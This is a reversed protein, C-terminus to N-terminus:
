PSIAAKAVIRFLPFGVSHLIALTRKRLVSLGTFRVMTFDSLRITPEDRDFHSGCHAGSEAFLGVHNHCEQWM